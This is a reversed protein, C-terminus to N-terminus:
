MDISSDAKNLKGINNKRKLNKIFIIYVIILVLILFINIPVGTAAKLIKGQLTDESNLIYKTLNQGWRASLILFMIIEGVTIIVSSFLTSLVTNKIPTKLIYLGILIIFIMFLLTHIGFNIIKIHRLTFLALVSIIVLFSFQKFKICRKNFAYLALIYGVAQLGYGLLGDFFFLQLYKM